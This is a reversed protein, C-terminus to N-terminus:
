LNPKPFFSKHNPLEINFEEKLIEHYEKVTNIVSTSTGDQTREKYLRDLLIKRGHIFPQTVIAHKVFIVDPNTSNYIHIANFDESPYVTLNFGYLDVWQADIKTVLKFGYQEDKVIMFLENFQNFITNLRFPIPDILGRSGFGTDCLWKQNDFEVMLIKHVLLKKDKPALYLVHAKLREVKYGMETLVLALLENIQSCGGGRQSNVLKKFLSDSDLGTPAIGLHPDLMDYPIHFSQQRHIEILSQRTRDRTGHYDIRKFYDELPIGM